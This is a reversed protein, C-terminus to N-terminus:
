HMQQRRWAVADRIHPALVAHEPAVVVHSHVGERLLLNKRELRLPGAIDEDVGPVIVVDVVLEVTCAAAGVAQTSPLGNVLQCLVHANFNADVPVVAAGALSTFALWGAALASCLGAVIAVAAPVTHHTQLQATRKHKTSM